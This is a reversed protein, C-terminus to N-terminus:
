AATLGGDLALVQGTVCGAAPSALYVVAAAVEAETPFRRTPIRELMQQRQAPDALSAQRSPTMVTAPAVANVRIGAQAWEIALMRTMQVMGGKAIGYVSREALGVLGHTSAINVVSGPRGMALLHRAYRSALFFGGKLNVAMLTDWEAWGVETAPSRLAVAANNVLVDLQGDFADLAGALAADISREERLELPLPVLRRTAFEPAGALDSLHTPDIETAAVDYGATALALVIARGLGTSAGTVLATRRVQDLSTRGARAPGM